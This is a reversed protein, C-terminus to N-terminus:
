ERIIIINLILIRLLSVRPNESEQLLFLLLLHMMVTIKLLNVTLNVQQMIQLQQQIRYVDLTLFLIIVIITFTPQLTTRKPSFLIVIRKMIIVHFISNIIIILNPLRLLIAKSLLQHMQQKIQERFNDRSQRLFLLLDEFTIM